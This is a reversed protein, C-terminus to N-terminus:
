FYIDSNNLVEAEEDAKFREDNVGFNRNMNNSNKNQNMTNIKIKPNYEGPGPIGIIVKNEFRENSSMFPVNVLPAM